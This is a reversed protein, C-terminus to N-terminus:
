CLFVESAQLFITSEAYIRFLLFACYCKASAFRGLLLFTWVAGGFLLPQRVARGPM